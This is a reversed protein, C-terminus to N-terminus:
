KIDNKIDRSSTYIARKGGGWPVMCSVGEEGRLSALLSQFSREADSLALTAWPMCTASDM